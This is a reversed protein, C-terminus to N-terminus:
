LKQKWLLVCAVFGMSSIGLIKHKYEEMTNPDFVSTVLWDDLDDKTVNM